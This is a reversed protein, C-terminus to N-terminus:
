RRPGLAEAIWADLLAEVLDDPMPEGVPFHLSSKTCTYGTTETALLPIVSGSHPLYSLHNTFAGFQRHDQRPAQVRCGYSMCEEADPVISVITGRLHSLTARKPEDLNALYKDIEAKSM